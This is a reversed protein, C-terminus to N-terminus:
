FKADIDFYFSRGILDYQSAIPVNGIRAQIVDDESIQPPATNFLNKVGAEVTFKDFKRRLAINSLTYFPAKYTAFVTQGTQNYDTDIETNVLVARRQELQDHLPLLQVDVPGHDFRWDINGVFTPQGISGLFNNM